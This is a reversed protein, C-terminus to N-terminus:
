RSLDRLVEKRYREFLGEQKMQKLAAALRIALEAHNQNLYPYLPAPDGIQLLVRLAGAGRIESGYLNNEVALDIDCYVDTRDLLLKELGQRTTAIASLRPAPVVAKLAGDCTLVGLRYEVRLPSKALEKLDDLRLEPKATYLAFAGVLVSEKVRILNPHLQGYILARAMEGDILGRDMLLTLRATPYSAVELPVGLRKFAESYILRFLRVSYSSESGGGEDYALVFPREGTSQALVTGVLGLALLCAALARRVNYRRLFPPSTPRKM